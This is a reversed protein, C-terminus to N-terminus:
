SCSAAPAIFTNGEVTTRSADAALVEGAPPAQQAPVAAASQLVALVCTLAAVLTRM